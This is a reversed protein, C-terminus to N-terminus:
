IDLGPSSKVSSCYSDSSQRSDTSLEGSLLPCNELCFCELFYFSFSCSSIPTVPTAQFTLGTQFNTNETGLIFLFKTTHLLLLLLLLLFLGDTSGHNWRRPGHTFFHCNLQTWSGWYPTWIFQGQVAGSPRYCHMTNCHVNNWQTYETFTQWLLKVTKLRSKITLSLCLTKEEELFNSIAM